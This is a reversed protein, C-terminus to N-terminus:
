GPTHVPGYKTFKYTITCKMTAFKVKCVFTSSENTILMRLFEFLFISMDRFHASIWYVLPSLSLYAAIYNFLLRLIQSNLVHTNMMVNNWFTYKLTKMLFILSFGNSIKQIRCTVIGFLSILELESINFFSIFNFMSPWKFQNEWRKCIFAIRRRRWRWKLSIRRRKGLGEKEKRRSRIM